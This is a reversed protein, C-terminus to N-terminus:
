KPKVCPSVVIGRTRVITSPDFLGDLGSRSTIVTDVGDDHAYRAVVTAVSRGPQVIVRLSEPLASPKTGQVLAPQDAFERKFIEYAEAPSVDRVSQVDPDARLNFLVANPYEPAVGVQFFLEFDAGWTDSTDFVTARGALARALAPQVDTDAPVGEIAFGARTQLGCLAPNVVPAAAIWSRDGAPVRAYHAVLPSADLAAQVDPIAPVVIADVRSFGTAPVEKSPIQTIRVKQGDHRRSAVVTGIAVVAVLVVALSSTAVRRRRERRHISRVEGDFGDMEDALTSLERRLEDIQMTM